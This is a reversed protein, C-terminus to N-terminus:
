RSHLCGSPPGLRKAAPHGTARPGHGTAPRTAARPQTTSIIKEFKRKVVERRPTPKFLRPFCGCVLPYSFSSELPQEPNASRKCGALLRAPQLPQLPTQGFEIGQGAGIKISGCPVGRRLPEIQAPGAIPHYPVEGGSLLTKQHAARFRGPLPGTAARDRGPRQATAARDSPPGTNRFHLM